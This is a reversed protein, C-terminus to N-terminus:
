LTEVSTKAGPQKYLHKEITYVFVAFMAQKNLMICVERSKIKFINM